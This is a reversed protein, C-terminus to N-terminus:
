ESLIIKGNEIKGNTFLLFYEYPAYLSGNVLMPAAGLSTPKSMGIAQVSSYYYNDYGVQITSTIVDNTLTAEYQKKNWKVKFGLAEGVERVPLMVKGHYYQISKDQLDLTKGNVVIEQANIQEIVHNLKEEEIVGSNRANDIIENIQEKSAVKSWIEMPYKELDIIGLEDAKQMAPLAYHTDMVIPLEEEQTQIIMTILEAVTINPQKEIKNAMIVNSGILMAVVLIWISIKKM